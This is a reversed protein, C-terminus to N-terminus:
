SDFVFTCSRNRVFHQGLHGQLFTGSSTGLGLWLFNFTENSNLEFAIITDLAKNLFHSDLTKQQLTIKAQLNVDACHCNKCTGCLMCCHIESLHYRILENWIRRWAHDFFHVLFSLNYTINQM